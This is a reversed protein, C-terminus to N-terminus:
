NTQIIYFLNSYWHIFSVNLGNYKKDEIWLEDFLCQPTEDISVVSTKSFDIAGESIAFEKM